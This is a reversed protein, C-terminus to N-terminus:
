LAISVHLSMMQHSNKADLPFILDVGVMLHEFLFTLFFNSDISATRPFLIPVLICACLWCCICIASKDALRCHGSLIMADDELEVCSKM